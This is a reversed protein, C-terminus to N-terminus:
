IFISFAAIILIYGLIYKIIEERNYHFIPLFHLIIIAIVASPISGVALYKVLRFNITKQKWHQSIGFMKTITNYVLDTGVAVSPSIGLTLLFPTLLAAGGIGTLGVLGGVIFGMMIISISM